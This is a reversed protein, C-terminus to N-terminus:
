PLLVPQYSPNVSPNFTIRQAIVLLTLQLPWCSLNQKWTSAVERIRLKLQPRAVSVICLMEVGCDVGASHKENFVM